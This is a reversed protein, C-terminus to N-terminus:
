SQHHLSSDVLLHVLYDLDSEYRNKSGKSSWVGSAFSSVENLKEKYSLTYIYEVDKKVSESTPVLFSINRSVVPCNGELEGIGPQGLDRKARGPSGDELHDQSPSLIRISFSSVLRCPELAILLFICAVLQFGM